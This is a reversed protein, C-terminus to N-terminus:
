VYWIVLFFACAIVLVAFTGDITSAENQQLIRTRLYQIDDTADTNREDAVMTALM